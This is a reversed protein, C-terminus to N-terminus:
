RPSVRPHFLCFVLGWGRLPQIITAVPIFGHTSYLMILGGWVGGYSPIKSRLGRYLLLEIIQKISCNCKEKHGVRCDTEESSPIVVEVVYVVNKIAVVVTQRGGEKFHDM